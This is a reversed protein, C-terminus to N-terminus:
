FAGGKESSVASWTLNWGTLAYDGSSTFILNVVNSSSEVIAPLTSSESQGGVILNGYSSGGCTEAMLTTGNGDIITVSDRCSVGNLEVNFATFEFSVSTGDQVKIIHTRAVDNPYNDPFNSSTLVGTVTHFLTPPLFSFPTERCSVAAEAVTQLVFRQRGLPTARSLTLFAPSSSAQSAVDVAATTAPTTATRPDPSDSTATSTRLPRTSLALQNTSFQNKFRLNLLM